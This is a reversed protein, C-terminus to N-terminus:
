RKSGADLYNQWVYVLPTAVFISSYTGVFIGIILGFAFDHIVDGGFIFLATVVALTTISTMMTRSLTENLSQNMITYLSEKRMLRINERIRDFIVITDNVSYGAITLFAAIITLTIEKNFMSFVGLVIFVDHLLAVVGAVGWVGSKFRFGVYLIIGIMSFVIALLTQRILYRGVVPGVFEIREMVLPNGTVQESLIKQVTDGIQAAATDSKKIKILVSNTKPFSQLGFGEYDAETLVQRILDMSVPQEFKVQVITGGTFDIGLDPGKKVSLSVIGAIILVISVALATIRHKLFDIHMDKLIQM